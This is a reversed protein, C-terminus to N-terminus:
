DNVTGTTPIPSQFLLTVIRGAGDLRVTTPIEARELRVSLEEGSGAIGEIEGFQTTLREIITSIEDIQVEKLFSESFWEPRIPEDFLREVAAPTGVPQASIQALGSLLCAITLATMRALRAFETRLM